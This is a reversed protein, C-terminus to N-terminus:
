RNLLLADIMKQENENQISALHGNINTCYNEADQWTLLENFTSVCFKGALIWGFACQSVITEITEASYQFVVSELQRSKVTQSDKVLSTTQKSFRLWLVNDSSNLSFTTNESESSTICQRWNDNLRNRIEVLVGTCNSKNSSVVESDFSLEDLWDSITGDTNKEITKDSSNTAVSKEELRLTIQAGFPLHIKFHCKLQSDSLKITYSGNRDFFSVNYCDDVFKYEFKFKPNNRVSLTVNSFSSFHLMRRNEPLEELKGCMTITGNFKIYGGSKCPVNLRHMKVLLGKKVGNFQIKPTAFHFLCNKM